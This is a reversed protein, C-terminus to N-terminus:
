RNRIMKSACADARMQQESATPVRKMNPTAALSGCHLRCKRVDAAEVIATKSQQPQAPVGVVTRNASQAFVPTLSVTALALALMTRNINTM